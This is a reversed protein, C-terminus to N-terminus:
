VQAAASSFYSKFFSFYFTFMFTTMHGEAPISVSGGSVKYEQSFRFLFPDVCSGQYRRKIPSQVPPPQASIAALHM